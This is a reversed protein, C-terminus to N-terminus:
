LPVRKQYPLPKVHRLMLLDWSNPQGYLANNMLCEKVEGNFPYGDGIIGLCHGIEHAIISVQGSSSYSDFGPSTYIKCEVGDTAGITCAAAGGWCSGDEVDASIAPVPWLAMALSVIAELIM